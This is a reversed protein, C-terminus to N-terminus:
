VLEFLHWVFRGNFTQATGHHKLIDHEIKDGTGVVIFHREQVQVEDPDLLVWMTPADQQSEVHLIQSGVPFSITYRQGPKGYQELPFKWVAKM